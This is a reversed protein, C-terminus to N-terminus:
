PLVKTKMPINAPVRILLSLTVMTLPTTGKKIPLLSAAWPLRLVKWHLKTLMKQRLKPLHKEGWQRFVKTLPIRLFPSTIQRPMQLPIVQLAVTTQMPAILLVPMTAISLYGRMAATEVKVAFVALLMNVLSRGKTIAATFIAVLTVASSVVWVATIAPSRFMVLTLAPLSIPMRGTKLLSGAATLVKPIPM